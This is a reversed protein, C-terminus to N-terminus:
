MNKKISICFKPFLDKTMILENIMSLHIDLTENASFFDKMSLGVESQSPQCQWRVDTAMRM